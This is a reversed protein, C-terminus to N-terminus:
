CRQEAAVSRWIRSFRKQECSIRADDRLFRLLLTSKGLYRNWEARLLQKIEDDTVRVGPARVPYHLNALAFDVANRSAELSLRTGNLVQVFHRMARQPFDSRTGACGKVSELRDDYPMVCDILREPVFERGAKSTFIRLNRCAAASISSLDDCVMELYTSPMAILTPSTEILKSLSRPGDSTIENWWEKANSGIRKLRKDLDSGPAVTCDYVPVMLDAPVLGLGASVVFWPADLHDAVVNTDRISRGQYLQKATGFKPTLEVLERWSRSLDGIDKVEALDVTSVACNGAKRLTCNTVIYVQMKLNQM